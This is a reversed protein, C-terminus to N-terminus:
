TFPAKNLVKQISRIIITTMLWVLLLYYYHNDVAAPLGLELISLTLESDYSFPLKGLSIVEFFTNNMKVGDAVNLYRVQSNAHHLAKYNNIKQTMYTIAVVWRLVRHLEM